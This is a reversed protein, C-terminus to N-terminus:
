QLDDGFLDIDKCFVQRLEIIVLENFGARFPSNGVNTVKYAIMRWMIGRRLAQATLDSMGNAVALAFTCSCQEFLQYAIDGTPIGMDDFHELEQGRCLM